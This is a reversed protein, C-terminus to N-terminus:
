LSGIFQHIYPMVSSGEGSSASIRKVSGSRVDGVAFVGPISTEYKLDTKIFNRDDLELTGKLWMTKPVAGIFIFMYDANYDKHGDEYAVRYASLNGKESFVDTVECGECIEINPMSKIRPILYESMQTKIEKRILLRIQMKQNQALKLVAQGASNAGGVVAVRCPRNKPIRSAPMGYYVGRGLVHSIGTAELRRYQLGIAIAVSKTVYEQYDDSTIVFGKGNSQKELRLAVVPCSFKTDFKTAQRVLNGMLSAGTIGEPFGPYNEIANSEKAQGGLIDGSDLLRVALGESAGNIAAALGAPGGGIVLLDSNFAM